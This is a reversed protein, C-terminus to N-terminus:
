REKDLISESIHNPLVFFFFVEEQRVIKRSQPSPRVDQIRRPRSRPPFAHRLKDVGGLDGSFKYLAVRSRGSMSVVADYCSSLRRGVIINNYYNFM